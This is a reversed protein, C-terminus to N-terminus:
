LKDISKKLDKIKVIMDCKENGNFMEILVSKEDQKTLRLESSSHINRDYIVIPRDDTFTREPMNRPQPAPMVNPRQSTVNKLNTREPGDTIRENLSEKKFYKEKLFSKVSKDNKTLKLFKDALNEASAKPKPVVSPRDKRYPSPRGPRVSPKTVPTAPKVAPQALEVNEDVKNFENFKKIM